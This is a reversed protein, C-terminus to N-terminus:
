HDSRRGVRGARRVDKETSNGCIRGELVKRHRVQGGVWYKPIAKVGLLDNEVRAELSLAFWTYRAAVGDGSYRQASGDM